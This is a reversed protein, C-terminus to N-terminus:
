EKPKWDLAFGSGVKSDDSKFIAIFSSFGLEFVSTANGCYRTILIISVMVIGTHFQQPLAFQLQLLDSV